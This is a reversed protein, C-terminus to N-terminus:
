ARRTCVYIFHSYSMKPYADLEACGEVRVPGERAGQQGQEYFAVDWDLGPRQLYRLRSRPPSHTVMLYSAGPPLLRHCERLMALSDAEDSEGCLLADLTGKDLVGGAFSGDAFQPMSRCDAVEYSLGPVDAHLASLQQICAPAYDVNVISRFGDLHMHYQIRSTGVGVHLVALQKDLHRDLLPELSGYDRYWEFPVGGERRYRADWYSALSFADEATYLAPNNDYESARLTTSSRAPAGRGGRAGGGSAAGLQWSSLWWPQSRIGRLDLPCAHCQGPASSSSCGAAPGLAKRLSSVLSM